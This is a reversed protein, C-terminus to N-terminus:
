SIFKYRIIFLNENKDCGLFIFDSQECYHKFDIEALPDTCLVKIKDGNETNQALKRARLVPIPCELGRVDLTIEKNNSKDKM